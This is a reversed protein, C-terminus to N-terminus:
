SRDPRPPISDAANYDGGEGPPLGVARAIRVFRRDGRLPELRPDLALDVLEPAREALAADLWAFARRRDGLAVAVTALDYPSVRRVPAVTNSAAIAPARARKRAIRIVENANTAPRTGSTTALPAPATPLLVMPEDASPPMTAPVTKPTSTIGPSYKM